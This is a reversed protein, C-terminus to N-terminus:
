ETTVEVRIRARWWPLRGLPSARLEIQPEVALKFQRSLAEAAAETTKGTIASRVKGPDIQPAMAAAASMTFHASEPTADILQGREFSASNAILQYGSKVRQELLSLLLREGDAGSIALGSARAKMTMGLRDTVDDIKHDFAEDLITIVLSDPPIFEGRDLTSTLEAYSEEQMRQMLKARLQVKDEGDVTSIRRVTGGGIRADNLVDVQAALEGEVTSVTLPPVNSAPGPQAAIVGVRVTSYLEGPLWVDAVTFFRIDEGYVTHVLTGKTITVPVSTKNAFVVTGQAHGDPVDRKNTTAITDTGEREIYATRAPVQATSYNVETLGLVGGIKMSAEVSESVPTLSVTASPLAYLLALALVLFSSVALLPQGYRRVASRRHGLRSAPQAVQIFPLRFTPRAPLRKHRRRRDLLRLDAIQGEEISPLIVFGMERALGRTERDEVVLGIDLVLNDAWRRLLTLNVRNKHLAKCGRPVFLLVDAETAQELLNHIAAINEDGVLEIVQM